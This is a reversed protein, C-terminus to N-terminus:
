EHPQISALIVKEQQVTKLRALEQKTKRILAHNTLKRIALEAQLEQLRHRTEAIKKVLAEADLKRYDQIIIQSKAM